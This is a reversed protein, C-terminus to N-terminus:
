EPPAAPAAGEDDPGPPDEADQADPGDAGDRPVYILQPRARWGTKPMLQNPGVNLRDGRKYHERLGHGFDAKSTVLVAAWRHEALAADVARSAALYPGDKHDIDWLAILHFYPTKGALVPLYPAYPSLVEGDIQRIREVLEWGVREDAATPLYTRPQWRGLYLQAAVLAGVAALALPPRPLRRALASLAMVGLLSLTWQGPMLVNLFGGTHGRMISCLVLALAGNAVWYAGGASWRRAWALGILASAGVVWPLGGVMERLAGPFLRNAVMGHSSPVLLLWTLFQGQSLATMAATFALAPGVSWLAFRTAEARGRAMALWVLVPLGFAAGNHKTAYALTLLLGAARVWGGRAAVLAWTLLAMFLGDIRVLDYFAGSEDYCSLYLGAGGLALGWPAREQRAAAVLAGAAALTGLVSVLRGLGMTLEVGPLWTLAAVVWSYLPPYLYPIFDPSPEVFLPLGDLVRKAHLLMGGEMWELDFPYHIRGRVTQLFLALTGAAMVAPPLEALLTLARRSPGGESM